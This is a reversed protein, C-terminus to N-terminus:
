FFPKNGANDVLAYVSSSQDLVRVSATKIDDLNSMDCNFFMAEAVAERCIAAALKGEEEIIDWLAIKGNFNALRQAIARGFGRAAGAIIATESPKLRDGIINKKVRTSKKVWNM